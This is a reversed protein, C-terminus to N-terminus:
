RSRDVLAAVGSCKWEVGCGVVVKRIDAPVVVSFSHPNPLSKHRCLGPPRSGIQAYLAALRPCSWRPPRAVCIDRLRSILAPNDSAQMTDSLRM